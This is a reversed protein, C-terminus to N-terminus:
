EDAPYMFSNEMMMISAAVHYKHPLGSEKDYIEGDIMAFLHRAASAQLREVALGSRWNDRGYKKAGYELVSILGELFGRDLLTYDPKGSDHKLAEKDKKIREKV